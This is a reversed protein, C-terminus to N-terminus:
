EGAGVREVAIGEWADGRGKRGRINAHSHRSRETLLVSELAHLWHARAAPRVPCRFCAGDQTCSSDDREQARHPGCRFEKAYGDGIHIAISVTDVIPLFVLDAQIWEIREAIALQVIIALGH